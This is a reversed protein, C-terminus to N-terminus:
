YDSYQESDSYDLQVNAMNICCSHKKYDSQVTSCQVKIM